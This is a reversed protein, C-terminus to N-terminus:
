LIDGYISEITKLNWGNGLMHFRMNEPVGKTYDDPLTQMREAETITINRWHCYEFLKTSDYRGPEVMAVVTDKLVTTLCNMKNTPNVELCQVIPIQKSATRNGNFLLRRGRIAAPREKRGQVRGKVLYGPIEKGDKLYMGHLTVDKPKFLDVWNCGQSIDSWKVGLAKPQHIQKNSWYLRPRSQASVRMSNILVPAAEVYDNIVLQHEPQMVVNELMFTVKPNFSKIYNYIDVFIFFLASRPDDFALRKGSYSFGQCPSGALVVDVSAWDVEWKRWNRVDGLQITDPFNRMAVQIAYGDVESAYYKTPKFPLAARGVSCGDFLSVVVSM